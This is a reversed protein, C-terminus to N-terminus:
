LILKGETIVPGSVFSSNKILRCANQDFNGKIVNSKYLGAVNGAEKYRAVIYTCVEGLLKTTFRGM